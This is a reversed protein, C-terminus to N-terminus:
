QSAVHSKLLYLRHDAVCLIKCLLDATESTSIAVAESLIELTPQM